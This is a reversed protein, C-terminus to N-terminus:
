TAFVFLEAQRSTCTRSSHQRTRDTSRTRDAPWISPTVSTGVAGNIPTFATIKPSAALAPAAGFAL